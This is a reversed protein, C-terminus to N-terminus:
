GGNGESWGGVIGGSGGVWWEGYEVWRSNGESGGVMGWGGNGGVVGGNGGWGWWGQWEIGTRMGWGRMEWQKREILRSEM